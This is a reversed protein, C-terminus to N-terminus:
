ATKKHSHSKASLCHDNPRIQGPHTRAVEIDLSIRPMAKVLSPCTLSCIAPPTDRMPRVINLSLNTAAIKIKSPPTGCADAAVRRSVVGGDHRLQPAVKFKPGFPVQCYRATSNEDGVAAVMVSM